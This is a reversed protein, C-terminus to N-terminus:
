RPGGPASGDPVPVAAAPAELKMAAILRETLDDATPSKVLGRALIEQVAGNVNDSKITFAGSRTSFVHSYGLEGAMREAAEGVLRFAETVQATKFQEVERNAVQGMEMLRQNKENFERALNKFRESEEKLDKSDDRLKQLEDALPQLKKNQEATFNDRDATYKEGSIMREVLLLMDVTAIRTTEAATPAAHAPEGTGRLGLALALALGIGATITLRETKTM